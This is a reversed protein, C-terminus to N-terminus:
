EGLYEAGDDCSWATVCFPKAAGQSVVPYYARQPLDVETMVSTGKMESGGRDKEAAGELGAVQM